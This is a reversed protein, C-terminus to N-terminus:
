IGYKYADLKTNIYLQLIGTVRQNKKSYLKSFARKIEELESVSYDLGVSDELRYAIRKWLVQNEVCLKNMARIIRLLNKSNIADKHNDVYNIIQYVIRPDDSGLITISDCIQAVKNQNLDECFRLGRSSELLAEMFSSPIPDGTSRRQRATSWLLVIEKCSALHCVDEEDSRNPLTNLTETARHFLPRTVGSKPFLVSASFCLQSIDALSSDSLFSGKSALTGFWESLQRRQAFSLLTPERSIANSLSFLIAAVHCCEPNEQKLILNIAREWLTSDDLAIRDLSWSLSSLERGSLASMALCKELDPLLKWKSSSKDKVASDSKLFQRVASQLSVMRNYSGNSAFRVVQYSSQITNSEILRRLVNSSVSM